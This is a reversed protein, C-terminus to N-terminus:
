RLHTLMHRKLHSDKAFMNNCVLCPITRQAWLTDHSHQRLLTVTPFRPESRQILPTVTSLKTKMCQRLHAVTPLQAESRQSIHTASPFEAESRQSLHAASPFEAESHQSLHTASPFEAESHQSLHTASPFEAESDQSLHTASPFEAESHQSLHAVTPVHTESSQRVHTVTSLQAESRKRRVRAVTPHQAESSQRLQAVTPVRTESHHMVHTFTPFQAVCPSCPHFSNVLNGELARRFVDSKLRVRIMGSVGQNDTSENDPEFFGSAPRYSSESENEDEDDCLDVLLVDGEEEIIDPSSEVYSEETGDFVEYMDYDSTDPEIKPVLLTTVECGPERKIHRTSVMIEDSEMNQIEEPEIKIVEIDM